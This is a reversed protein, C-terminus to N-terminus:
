KVKQNIKEKLLSVEQILLKIKVNQGAVIITLIISIFILIILLLCLMFNAMTGFGFFRAIYNILIPFIATILIIFDAFYWVLAYKIPMRGKKLIWTIIIAFCLAAVVLIVRLEFSMM